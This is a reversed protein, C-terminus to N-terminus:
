YSEKDKWAQFHHTKGRWHGMGMCNVGGFGHIGRCIQWFEETRGTGRGMGVLDGWPSRLAGWDQWSRGESWRVYTSNRTHHGGHVFTHVHWVQDVIM